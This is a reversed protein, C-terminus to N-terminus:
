PLRGVQEILHEVFAALEDAAVGRFAPRKRNTYAKDIDACRQIITSEARVMDALAAYVTDRQALLDAAMPGTLLASLDAHGLVLAKVLAWRDRGAAMLRTHQEGNGPLLGGGVLEFDIPESEEWTKWSISCDVKV